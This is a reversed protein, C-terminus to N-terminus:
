EHVGGMFGAVVDVIRDRPEPPFHVYRAGLDWALDALAPHETSGVVIVSVDPHFERITRFLGFEAELDSSLGILVIAPGGQRLLEMCGEIRRPQRLAWRHTGATAELVRALRGDREYIVLEPFRM